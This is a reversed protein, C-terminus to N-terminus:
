NMVYHHFWIMTYPIEKHWSPFSGGDLQTITALYKYNHKPLQSGTVGTPKAHNVDQALDDNIIM